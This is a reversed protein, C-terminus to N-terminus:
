REKRQQEQAYLGMLISQARGLLMRYFISRKPGSATYLADLARQSCRHACKLDALYQNYPDM